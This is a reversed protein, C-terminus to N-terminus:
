HELLTHAEEFARFYGAGSRGAHGRDSAPEEREQVGPVVDDSGAGHEAGAAVDDLREAWAEADGHSQDVAAIEILPLCGDLRVRAREEELRGGVRRQIQHVDAGYGVEAALM